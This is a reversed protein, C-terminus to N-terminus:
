GAEAIKAMNDKINNFSWQWAHLIVGEQCTDMLGYDSAAADVSTSATLVGGLGVFSTALMAASLFASAIKKGIGFRSNQATKNM